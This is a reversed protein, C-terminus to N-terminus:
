WCAGELVRRQRELDEAVVDDAFVVGDDDMFYRGGGRHYAARTEGGAVPRLNVWSPGVLCPEVLVIRWGIGKVTAHQGEVLRVTSSEGFNIEPPPPESM